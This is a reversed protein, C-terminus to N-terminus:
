CISPPLPQVMVIVTYRSQLQLYPDTWLLNSISVMALQLIASTCTCAVVRAVAYSSSPPAKRTGSYRPQKPEHADPCWSGYWDPSSNGQTPTATQTASKVLNWRIDYTEWVPSSAKLLQLVELQKQQPVDHVVSGLCPISKLALKQSIMRSLQVKKRTKKQPLPLTVHHSFNPQLCPTDKAWAGTCELAM